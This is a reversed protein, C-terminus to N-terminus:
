KSRKAEHNERLVMASIVSWISWSLLTVFLLILYVNTYPQDVIPGIMLYSLVALISCGILPRYYEGQFSHVVFATYSLYITYLTTCSVFLFFCIFTNFNSEFNLRSLFAGFAAAHPISLGGFAFPWVESIPPKLSSETMDGGCIRSPPLGQANRSQSVRM